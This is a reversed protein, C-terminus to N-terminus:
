FCLRQRYKTVNVPGCEIETVENCEEGIKFEFGVLTCEEFNGIKQRESGINDEDIDSFDEVDDIRLQRQNRQEELM